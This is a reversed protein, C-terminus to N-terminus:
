ADLHKWDIPKANFRAVDLQRKTILENILRAGNGYPYGSVDVAGNYCTINLSVGNIAGIIGEHAPVTTGGLTLADGLEEHVLMEADEVTIETRGNARVAHNYLCAIVEGRTCLPVYQVLNRHETM